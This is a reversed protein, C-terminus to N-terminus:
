HEDLSISKRGTDNDLSLKNQKTGTNDLSLKNQSSKQHQSHELAEVCLLGLLHLLLLLLGALIWGQGWEVAGDQTDVAEEVRLAVSAQEQQLRLAQLSDCPDFADLFHAAGEYDSQTILAIASFILIHM